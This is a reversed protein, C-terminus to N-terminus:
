AEAEGTEGRAETEPPPDVVIRGGAIDVTPAAEKTFPILLAAGRGAPAIELIDGAGFNHVAVVTGLPAGDRGVAQLGVLDAHYFEDSDDPAPLRAREVTLEAGNLAEAASRDDISALKAVLASGAPRLREVLIRRGDATELPGYATLSDPDDTFPRLRVEGKVGHPAGIRALVIRKDGVRGRM